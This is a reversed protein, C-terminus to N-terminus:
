LIKIEKNKNVEPDEKENVLNNILKKIIDVKFQVEEAFTFEQSIDSDSSIIKYLCDAIAKRNIHYIM